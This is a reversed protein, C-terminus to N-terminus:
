IFHLHRRINITPYDITIRETNEDNCYELWGKIEDDSYRGIDIQEDDIAVSSRCIAKGSGGVEEAGVAAGKEVAIADESIGLNNTQTDMTLLGIIREKESLHNDLDLESMALNENLDIKKKCCRLYKAIWLFFTGLLIKLDSSLYTMVGISSHLVLGLESLSATLRIWTPIGDRTKIADDDKNSGFLFYAEEFTIIMRFTHLALFLLIQKKMSRPSKIRKTEQTVPFEDSIKRAYVATWDIELTDLQIAGRKGLNRAVRAQLLKDDNKALENKINHLVYILYAVPLIGLIGFNLVGICFISYLPNFRLFSPKFMPGTDDDEISFDFEVLVPLTLSISAIIIPICYKMWIARKESQSLLTNSREFPKKIAVMRAHAIAVIMLISFILCSRTGAIVIVYYFEIYQTTKVIGYEVIKRLFEFSLFFTDSVLLTLLLYGYLQGKRPGFLLFVAGLLNLITGIIAIFPIVAGNIVFDITLLASFGKAVGDFENIETFNRLPNLNLM